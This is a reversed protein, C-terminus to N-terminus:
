HQGQARLLGLYITKSFSTVEDVLLVTLRQQRACATSTIKCDSMIMKNLYFNSVQVTDALLDWLTCYQISSTVGFVRFMNSFADYDRESLYSSYCVYHVDCGFLALIVPAAGLIISKGEGTKVEAFHHSLEWSSSQTCNLLSWLAVMQAAHPKIKSEGLHTLGGPLIV